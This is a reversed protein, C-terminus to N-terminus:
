ISLHTLTTKLDNIPDIQSAESCKFTALLEPAHRQITALMISRAVIVNIPLGSKRLGILREIIEQQMLSYHSLLKPNGSGSPAHRQKVNHLTAKSWQYQSRDIWKSVTGKNLHSFLIPQEQKLANVMRHASWNYKKVATDIHAWLFPHYWNTCKHYAQKIGGHKGNREKKWHLHNSHSIGAVDLKM